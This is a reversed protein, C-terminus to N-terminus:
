NTLPPDKRNWSKLLRQEISILLIFKTIEIRVKPKNNREIKKTRTEKNSFWAPHVRHTFQGHWTKEVRLMKLTALSFQFKGNAKKGRSNEIEWWTAGKSRDGVKRNPCCHWDCNGWLRIWLKTWVRHGTKM